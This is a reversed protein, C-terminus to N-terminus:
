HPNPQIVTLASTELIQSQLHQTRMSDSDHRNESIYLVWMISSIGLIKVAMPSMSVALGGDLRVHKVLPVRGLANEM